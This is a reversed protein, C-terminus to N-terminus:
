VDTKVGGSAIAHTAVKGLKWSPGPLSLEGNNWKQADTM